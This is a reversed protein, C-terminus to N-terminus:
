FSGGGITTNKWLDTAADYILAQGTTPSTILVDHIEDLEYGNQPRVYIQGNGANSREVVGIYVLHNPAVPKTGTLSGPTPGLYLTTGAPFASTDVKDLVGQTIVFGTQNAGISDQAVLGLTKASTADGTNNALKVTARDGQAQHLYVAQGRTIAVPEANTVYAYMQEGINVEQTGDVIGFAATATDANWRLKGLAITPTATTDLQVFDPTSIGGTVGTMSTIDNNAGLVAASLNARAGAADTAGTGGNAVGLTGSMTLVGATTVPGGSFTLGTTGGSVNISTVGGIVAGQWTGNAYGEFALLDTNYRLMGNVPTPRQATTGIPVTVSASGPLIPNSALAVTPNAAGNGDTVTIQNSTGQISVKAYTGGQIALIGTGTQGALNALASGLTITPNGAVGDGDAMSLGAGAVLVRSTVVSAGTKVQIGLPSSNLSLAAGTLSFAYSGGPGGDSAVLGAGPAIQRAQTLGVTSGVTLFPYNLAGAGSIASTTTQVTVGNQVIPVAESGTLAAAPPLDTIETQASM